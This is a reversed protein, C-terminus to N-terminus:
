KNFENQDEFQYYDFNNNPHSLKNFYPMQSENDEDEENMYEGEAPLNMMGIAQSSKGNKLSQAAKFYVSHMQQLGGKGSLREQLMKKQYSFQAKENEFQQKEKDFNMKEQEFEM